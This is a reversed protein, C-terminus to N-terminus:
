FKFKLLGLFSLPTPDTNIIDGALLLLNEYTFGFSQSLFVSLKM